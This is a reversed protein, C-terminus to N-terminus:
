YDRRFNANRKKKKVVHSREVRDRLNSIVVPILGVLAINMTVYFGVIQRMKELDLPPVEKNPWVVNIPAWIFGFLCAGMAPTALLGICMSLTRERRSSDAQEVSSQISSSKKTAM